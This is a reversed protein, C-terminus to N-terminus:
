RMVDGGNVLLIQGTMFANAPSALFLAAALIDDATGWRKMPIGQEVRQQFSIPRSQSWDNSIWGPAICNVRIHPAFTRALSRTMSIVAGKSTAYLQNSFGPAGTLAHDWGITLICGGSRMSRRAAHCCRWTGLVDVAMMEQFLELESKDKTEETNATAGANNIWVDIAGLQTTADEVLRTVGETIRIDAQALVAHGGAEGILRVVDEAQQKAHGYHVLVTAGQAAFGLALTRGIGRGAGTIVVNKGQFM